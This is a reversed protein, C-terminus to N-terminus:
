QKNDEKEFKNMLIFEKALMYRLDTQNPDNKLIFELHKLTGADILGSKKTMFLNACILHLNLTIPHSPYKKDLTDLLSLAKNKALNYIENDESNYSNFTDLYYDKKDYSLLGDTFYNADKFQSLKSLIKFYYAYVEFEPYNKIIDDFYKDITEQSNLDSNKNVFFNYISPNHFTFLINTAFRLKKSVIQKENRLSDSLNIFSESILYKNELFKIRKKVSNIYNGHPYENEYMSYFTYAKNVYNINDKDTFSKYLFHEAIFFISEGRYEKYENLSILDNCIELGKNDLGLLFANKMEEFKNQAFSQKISILFILAMFIKFSKGM